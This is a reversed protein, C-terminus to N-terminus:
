FINIYEPLPEYTSLTSQNVPQYTGSDTQFKFYLGDDTM